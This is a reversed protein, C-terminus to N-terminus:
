REAPTAPNGPVPADDTGSLGMLSRLLRRSAGTIQQLDDLTRILLPQSQRILQQAQTSTQEASTGTRSLQRLAERLDPATAASERQLATALDSVGDLSRRAERLTQPLDTATLRSTNRLTTTLERQAQLLQQMLTAVAIPPEYRITRGSLSSARGQPQPDASIELYHDGVLGEQNQSAVSKPGILSAYRREVQLQVAVRADPLLQLHRVQGVPLGSIRVEQGARLGGANASLMRLQLMPEGWHQERALGVLVAAILLVGSGLFLWREHSRDAEAPPTM